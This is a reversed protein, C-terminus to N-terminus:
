YVEEHTGLTELLIAEAGEHHVFSFIIRLDYAASCAWSGALKGKLKHTRLQSHFADHALLELASQIAAVAAPQKKLTRKAARVFAASPLLLRKV